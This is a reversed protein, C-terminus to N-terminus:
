QKCDLEYLVLTLSIDSIDLLDGSSQVSRSYRPLALAWLWRGLFDSAPLYLLFISSLGLSRQLRPMLM